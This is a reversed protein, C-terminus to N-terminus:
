MRCCRQPEIEAERQLLIRRGDDVQDRLRQGPRMPSSSTVVIRLKTMPLRSPAMAAQGREGRQSRVIAVGNMRSVPTGGTRMPTSSSNKM